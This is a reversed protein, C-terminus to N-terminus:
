SATFFFYDDESTWYTVLCVITFNYAHACPEHVHDYGARRICQIDDEKRYHHVIKGVYFVYVGKLSIGLVYITQHCPHHHLSYKIPLM